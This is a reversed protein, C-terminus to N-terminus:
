RAHRDGFPVETQLPARSQGGRDWEFEIRDGHRSAFALTAQESGEGEIRWSGNAAVLRMQHRKRWWQNIERGTALWAGDQRARSTLLRLLDEYVAIARSSNLYDPHAIFSVLGHRSTIIDMQAAWLETSYDKLLHFLTYDQITTLPLELIRGIFYPFVTCCGGRQPELHAVNPVSMDFSINLDALWAPNRYMCPSRFGDIAFASLYRNIREADRLFRQRDGFLNGHHDLGHLNVDVSRDRLRNVLDASVPYRKEPVLQVSAPVGFAQDRDLLRDLLALGAANEVDHSLLAAWPAGQPWFWIFPIRDVRAETIIQLLAEELLSEVSTDVPWQPFVREEWGHFYIRQLVQRAPAPIFDRCSYYFRSLARAPADALGKNTGTYREQRLDEIQNALHAPAPRVAMNAPLRFFDAVPDTAPATLAGAERSGDLPEFPFVASSDHMGELM